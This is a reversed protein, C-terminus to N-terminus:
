CTLHFGAAVDKDQEMLRNFTRVAKSTSQEILEIGNAKLSKRLAPESKMLGPKGKGLVLIDPKAALIDIVDDVSVSHGSRRWWGSSVKGKVIKLDGTYTQGDIVMKGFSYNDIMEFVSIILKKNFM